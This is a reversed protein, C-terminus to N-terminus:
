SSDSFTWLQFHKIMHKWKKCLHNIYRAPPIGAMRIDQHCLLCEINQEEMLIVKKEIISFFTVIYKLTVVFHKRVHQKRKNRHNFHSKENMNNVWVWANEKDECTCPEPQVLEPYQLLLTRKVLYAVDFEIKHTM